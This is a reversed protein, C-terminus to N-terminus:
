EDDEVKVEDTDLNDPDFCAHVRAALRTAEEPTDFRGIELPMHYDDGMVPDGYENLAEVEVWVKYM